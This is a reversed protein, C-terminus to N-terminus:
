KFNDKGLESYDYFKEGAKVWLSSSKALGALKEMYYAAIIPQGASDLSNIIHATSRLHITDSPNSLADKIRSVSEKENASLSDESEKIVQDFDTTNGTHGSEQQAGVRNDTSPPPKRNIFFLGILLIFSGAIALWQRSTFKSM